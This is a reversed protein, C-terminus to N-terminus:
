QPPSPRRQQPPPTHDNPSLGGPTRAKPAAIDALDDAMVAMNCPAFDLEVSNNHFDFKSFQPRNISKADMRKLGRENMMRTLVSLVSLVSLMLVHLIM